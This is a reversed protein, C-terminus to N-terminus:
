ARLLGGAGGENTAAGELVPLDVGLLVADLGRRGDPRGAAGVADEVDVVTDREGVLLAGLGALEAVVIGGDGEGLLQMHRPLLARGSTSASSTAIRNANSRWAAVRNNSVLNWLSNSLPYPTLILRPLPTTYLKTLYHPTTPEHNQFESANYKNQVEKAFYKGHRM